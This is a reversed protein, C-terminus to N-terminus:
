PGIDVGLTQSVLLLQPNVQVERRHDNQQNGGLCVRAPCFGSEGVSMSARPIEQARQSYCQPGFAERRHCGLPPRYPVGIM